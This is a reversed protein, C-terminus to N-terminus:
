FLVKLALQLSRPGGIQYLPSLGGLSRGLMQTSVGFDPDSLTGSPNGFNPHNFLNFADLKLQLKARESLSFQRRLSLDIQWAPFGRLSNRGLTGQRGALPEVFAARNLSRGGPAAQDEVYLPVGAVLDPRTVTRFGFGFPDAGTLANVPTASRARFISDVGFGGVVARGVGSEVPPPIDYSVAGSLQHRADFASPGRDHKPDLAGLPAQYNVISEDSVIDLSKAFTYSVLAQLGRSLRRQFQTQLAHYDSAGNNRVVSMRTFNPHPNQLREVRGLRRGTAGVYGVTVSNNSGFAQEVTVNYQLTYPLKYGREYVFLDGFPPELNAPPPLAGVLPSSLPVDVLGVHRGYPYSDPGLGSGAFTYGLDYFVGFGGRLVTGREPFLQYAVGFRPALNNFTTEYLRAGRPALKLNTLDDLGDVTLPLNGNKESPPPNVEYRLGYTLTLRRGARWTDQAFASYNDFLPRLTVDTALIDLFPINGDLADSVSFFFPFRRFAAGHTVPALRRYDFGAKLSHAGKTYSLTEVMNFQGQRNEINLGATLANLGIFPYVLGGRDAPPFFVSSPPPIAGGFNDIHYVSKAEARSYNLRLDNSVRPSFIATAGATLTQTKQPKDGVTSSSAFDARVQSESPAHNYRGFLTFRQNVTHDLRVSFADLSSPNSYSGVFTATNPDGSLEPGNPLPFANLIDRALGTAQRRARLSPVEEPPSVAPQRLRLGEYSVFFFTRDRGGYGMPGFFRSPLVVPGGVTFGFDNQRLAPKALGNRNAFYDNADFLDNRLYNFLSGRLENAGSRTVILVQAGPQRGFEPAYTSTQISFEQLADVSVLSNTGGQASLAPLAGGATNYLTAAGTTGFNASVGDIMFYNTGARQGNVSFQGQATVNEPTFVVGPALGILSQFSRGNLPQNTAFQRDVVTGVAPSENLLAPEDTVNVTASVGGVRLQILLTRQDGVNLVLDRKTVAAFGARECLITYNGPPLLPLTFLGESDSTTRRELNTATNVAKIGANAVAAGTQDTVSGSLTATASQATTKSPPAILSALLAFVAVPIFGRRQPKLSSQVRNM